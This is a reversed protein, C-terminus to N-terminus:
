FDTIDDLRLVDLNMQMAAMERSQAADSTDAATEEAAEEVCEATSASQRLAEARTGAFSRFRHLFKRQVSTYGQYRSLSILSQYPCVETLLTSTPGTMSHPWPHNPAHITSPLMVDKANAATAAATRMVRWQPSRRMAHFSVASPHQNAHVVGHIAVTLSHENTAKEAYNWRGYERKGLVESDSFWEAAEAIHDIDTFFSPYNHHLM